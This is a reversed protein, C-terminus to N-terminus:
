RWTPALHAIVVYREDQIPRGWLTPDTLQETHIVEASRELAEEPAPLTWVLHRVVIADFPGSAVAAPNSADDHQPPATM